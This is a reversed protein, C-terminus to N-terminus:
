ARRRCRFPRLASDVAHPSAGAPGYIFSNDAVGSSNSYRLLFAGNAPNYLGATDM